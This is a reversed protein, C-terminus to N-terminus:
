ESTEDYPLFPPPEIDDPIGAARLAASIGIHGTVKKRLAALEEVSFRDPYRAELEAMRADVIKKTRDDEM